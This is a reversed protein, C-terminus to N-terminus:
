PEARRLRGATPHDQQPHGLAGAAHGERHRGVSTSRDGPEVIVSLHQFAVVVGAVGVQPDVEVGGIEGAEVVALGFRDSFAASIDVM